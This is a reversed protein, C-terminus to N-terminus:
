KFSIYYSIQNAYKSSAKGFPALDGDLRVWKSAAQSDLPAVEIMEGLNLKVTVPLWEGLYSRFGKM